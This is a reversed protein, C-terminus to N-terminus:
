TDVKPVMNLIVYISKLLRDLKSVKKWIADSAAFYVNLKYNKLFSLRKKM